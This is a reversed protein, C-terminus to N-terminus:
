PRRPASRLRSLDGLTGHSGAGLSKSRGGAAWASGSRTAAAVRAPHGEPGPKVRSVRRRM